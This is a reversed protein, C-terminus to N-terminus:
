ARALERALQSAFRLKSRGWPTFRPLQFPDTERSAVGRSTTVAVAYGADKASQVAEPKFDQGPKGNPYAFLTVSEGLISELRIKSDRLERDIAARDLRALIPHGVTHAGIQMGGRRMGLVQESTMMLDNRPRVRAREAIANVAQLRLTPELYKLKQILSEAAARRDVTSRLPHLGFDGEAMDRLDLEGSECGRATEILTDNWMRGGDLFGTAVFFTAQLGHRQLIPMAVRHNDEYGDDFTICLSRAPLRGARLAAAAEDLPQVRFWSALWGCIEDFRRAHMEEPFLPDPEDLVRHFILTTLRARQGSPSLVSFLPKM